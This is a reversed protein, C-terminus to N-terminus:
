DAHISGCERDLQKQASADDIESKEFEEDFEHDTITRFAQHYHKECFSRGIDAPRSCSEHVDIEGGLWECATPRYEGHVVDYETMRSM